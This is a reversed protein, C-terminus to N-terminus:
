AQGFSNSGLLNSCEAFGLEDGTLETSLVPSFILPHFDVKHDHLSNLAKSNVLIGLPSLVAALVNAANAEVDSGCSCRMISTSPMAVGLM